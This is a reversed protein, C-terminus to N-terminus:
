PTIVRYFKRPEDVPVPDKVINTTGNGPVSVFLDAWLGGTVTSKFQVTYSRGVVSEWSIEVESVRLASALPLRELKVDDVHANGPVGVGDFRITTADSTATFNTGYRKWQFKTLASGREEVTRIVQGNVSASLLSDVGPRAAHSFSLRYDEGPVTPVTQWLSVVEAHQRGETAEEGPLSSAWILVADEATQWPALESAPVVHNAGPALVPLEFSGNAVLNSWPSPPEIEVVGYVPYGPTDPLDNWQGATGVTQLGDTGLLETFDEESANNPEGAAWNSYTASQGNFWRFTGEQQADTFGIWLHRGEGGYTGFTTTVFDNEAQDNIVALFGGLRQAELAASSWSTSTLLYYAHGNAANTVPGTLIGGDVSAVGLALSLAVALAKTKM